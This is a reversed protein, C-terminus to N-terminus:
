GKCPLDLKVSITMVDAQGVMGKENFNTHVNKTSYLIAPLKNTQRGWPCVDQQDVVSMWGADKPCGGYKHFIFFRRAHHSALYHGIISFYNSPVTSLDKWTSYIVRNKAFWSMRDSNRGNFLIMAVKKNKKFLTVQVQDVHGSPWHNLLSSHYHRDCFGSNQLCGKPMYVRALPHDDDISKDVYNEYASQQVGATLRFALVWDRSQWQMPSLSSCHEFSHCHRHVAEASAALTLLLFLISLGM